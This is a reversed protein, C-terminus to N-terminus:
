RIYGLSKLLKKEESFDDKQKYELILIDENKCDLRIKTSLKLKEFLVEGCGIAAPLGLEACRIAMHSAVGGYKTILGKPRKSFIWDFGPDANEIMVIKSEVNSLNKMNTLILKEATTEKKTIYNPKAIYHHIVQFDNKSFIIPPLQTHNSILKKKKNQVIKKHWFDILENKKLTKFKMIDKLELNSLEERTFGLSEGAKAILEISYSLNKTFEFKSKERLTTTERVFEFFDMSDFRLGYRKLIHEINRQYHEKKAPKVTKLIKLNELFEEMKDYRHVTIDYTGPRLHGYKELFENKSIKKTKLYFLDEQFETVPTSISNMFKKIEHDKIYSNVTLEKLLINGIFALRAITVFPITGYKKCDTLLSEADYLENLYKNTRVKRNKISKRKKELKSLLHDTHELLRPSKHILENTFELLKKKFILLERSTFGNKILEKLKKNISFDYCTFLIEFEAKDHLHPNDELKKLFFNILKKRTQENIESPLLSNFSAKVDVYPKGSFEKMLSINKIKRYGLIARGISWSNKMILYDYLSYDLKNPSDGIIEAPNWDTMNSFIIKNGILDKQLKSELFKKQNNKIETEIISGTDLIRSKQMTTLPRVQFIKIGNNTIAFEIDLADNNTIKEIEQIAVILKKWKIPIKNKNIKNFIKITNGIIGKTVSNTSKGDEYNIVYYPSGNSPTKTFVIGSTKSDLTQKQILIQNQKNGGAKKDYSRIVKKISNETNKKNNANVNLISTYAGADSKELSDEGAASSRIVIKHTQFLNKVNKLIIEKDDKWESVTFDYMQEIKSKKIKDRLFKLVNSKSTFIVESTSNMSKNMIFNDGSM